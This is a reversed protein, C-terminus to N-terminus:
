ARVNGSRIPEEEDGFECIVVVPRFIEEWWILMDDKVQTFVTPEIFYGKVIRKPDISV